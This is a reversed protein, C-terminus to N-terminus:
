LLLLNTTCVEADDPFDRLLNEDPEESEGDPAEDGDEPESDSGPLQVIEMPGLRARPKAPKSSEAVDGGDTTPETQTEPTGNTAEIDTLAAM